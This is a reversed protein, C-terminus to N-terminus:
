PHGAPYNSTVAWFGATRVDDAKDGRGERKGAPPAEQCCDAM